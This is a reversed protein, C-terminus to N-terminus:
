DPLAVIYDPLSHQKGNHGLKNSHKDNKENQGRHTSRDPLQGSNFAHYQVAIWYDGGGAYYIMMILCFM